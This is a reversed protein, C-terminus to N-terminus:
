GIINLESQTPTQSKLGLWINGSLDSISGV